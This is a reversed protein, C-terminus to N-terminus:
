HTFTMAHLLHTRARALNTLPDDGGKVEVVYKGAYNMSRYAALTSPWDVLGDGPVLHPDRGVADSDHVHTNLLLGGADLIERVLNEGVFGNFVAHGTDLCIGATGNMRALVQRLDTVARLTDGRMTHMNELALEVGRGAAHAAITDAITVFRDLAVSRSEGDDAFLVPHLVAFGAGVRRAYELTQACLEVWAAARADAPSGPLVHDFPLHVSRITLPHVDLWARLAALDPEVRPDLHIGEAWVEVEDFGVKGLTDLATLLDQTPCSWTAGVLLEEVM